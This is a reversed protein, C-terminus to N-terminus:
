LRLKDLRRAGTCNKKAHCKLSGNHKSEEEVLANQSIAWTQLLEQGMQRVGEALADEADDARKFEGSSNETVAILAEIRAKIHPYRDLKKALENSDM